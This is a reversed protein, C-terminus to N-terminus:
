REVLGEGGRVRKRIIRAAVHAAFRLAHHDLSHGREVDVLREFLQRRQRGHRGIASHLGFRVSLDDALQQIGALDVFGEGQQGSVAFAGIRKARQVGHHLFQRRVIGLAQDQEAVRGRGEAGRRPAVEAFDDQFIPLAQRAVAHLGRRRRHDTVQQLRNGLIFRPRGQAETAAAIGDLERGPL